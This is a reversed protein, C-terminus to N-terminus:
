LKNVKIAGLLTLPTHVAGGEVVKRGVTESLLDTPLDLIVATRMDGPLHGEVAEVVKGTESLLTILLHPIVATSMEGLLPGGAVNRRGTESLLNLPLDLIAATSMDELPPGGVVKRRGTESLLTKSLDLIATTSMDGPLLDEVEVVVTEPHVKSFRSDM